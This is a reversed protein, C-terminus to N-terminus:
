SDADESKPTIMMSKTDLLPLTIGRKHLVKKLIVYLIQSAAAATVCYGWMLEPLVVSALLGLILPYFVMGRRLNRWLPSHYTGDQHRHSAILPKVFQSMIQYVVLAIAAYPLVPLGYIMFLELGQQLTEM